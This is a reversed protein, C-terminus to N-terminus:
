LKLGFKKLFTERQTSLKSFSIKEKRYDHIAVTIRSAPHIQLAQGRKTCEPYHKM